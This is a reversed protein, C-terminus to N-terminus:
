ARTPGLEALLSFSRLDAGETGTVIAGDSVLWAHALLAGESNRRVGLCLTSALGRRALLVQCAQARTLCSAFPIFRAALFTARGIRRAAWLNTANTVSKPLLWSRLRKLGFLSLGVRVALVTAGISLAKPAAGMAQLLRSPSRAKAASSHRM